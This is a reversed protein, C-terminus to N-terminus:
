RAIPYAVTAACDGQRIRAPFRRCILVGSTQAFLPDPARDWREPFHVRGLLQGKEVPAGVELLSEYIGDAPSLHYDERNTAAIVQVPGPPPQVVGEMLGAHIMVNRIGTEAIRLVEPSCQGAGGMETTVVTKGLREAEVPLLGSGAIDAYVFVYPAGWAISAALMRQWQAEDEVRHLNTCPAFIMSKGGSHTDMVVDAIPFLVSSVYHAVLGTVTDNYTGPFARNLNRGDIPSLRTGARVAPLNLAPILIVRGQIHEPQLDRALKMLAVCGEYEDGHTGGSALLTPGVGNAVVTIPIEINAWGAENDSYPLMLYGQQKGPQDYDITTWIQTQTTM